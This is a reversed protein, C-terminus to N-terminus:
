ARPQAPVCKFQAYIHGLLAGTLTVALAHPRPLRLSRAGLGAALLGAVEGAGSYLAARRECRELLEREGQTPEYRVARVWYHLAAFAESAKRDNITQLLWATREQARSPGVSGGAESMDTTDGWGSSM